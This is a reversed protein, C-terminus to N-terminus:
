QGVIVMLALSRILFGGQGWITSFRCLLSFSFSRSKGTILPRRSRRDVALWGWDVSEKLVELPQWLFPFSLLHSSFGVYSRQLFASSSFPHFLGKGDRVGRLISYPCIPLNAGM